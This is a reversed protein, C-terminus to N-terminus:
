GESPACVRRIADRRRSARVSRDDRRGYRHCCRTTTSRNSTWSVQSICAAARSCTPVVCCPPCPRWGGMSIGTIWRNAATTLTPAEVQPIPEEYLARWHSPLSADDPARLVNSAVAGVFTTGSGAVNASNPTPISHRPTVTRRRCRRQPASGRVARSACCCARRAIRTASLLFGRM